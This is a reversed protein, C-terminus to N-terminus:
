QGPLRYGHTRLYFWWFAALALGILALFRLLLGLSADRPEGGSAADQGAADAGIPEVRNVSMGSGAAKREAAAKSAADLELIMRAGTERHAGIARFKM